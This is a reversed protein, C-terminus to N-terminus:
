GPQVAVAFGSKLPPLIETAPNALQSELLCQAKVATNKAGLFNRM